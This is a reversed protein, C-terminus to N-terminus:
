DFCHPIFRSANGAPDTETLLNGDADYTTGLPLGSYTTYTAPRAEEDPSAEPAGTIPGRAAPGCTTCHRAERTGPQGPTTESM